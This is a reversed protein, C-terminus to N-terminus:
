GCGNNLGPLSICMDTRVDTIGLEVSSLATRETGGQQRCRRQMLKVDSQCRAAEARALKDDRELLPATALALAPGTGALGLRAKLLIGRTLRNGSTERINSATKFFLPPRCIFVFHTATTATRAIQMATGTTATLASSSDWLSRAVSFPNLSVGALEVGAEPENRAVTLPSEM